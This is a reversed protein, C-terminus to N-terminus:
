IALGATWTAALADVYEADVPKYCRRSIALMLANQIDPTIIHRILGDQDFSTIQYGGEGRRTNPHIIVGKGTASRPDILAHVEQQQQQAHEALYAPIFIRAIATEDCPYLHQAEVQALELLDPSYIFRKATTSYYTWAGDHISFAAELAEDIQESTPTTANSFAKLYPHQKM